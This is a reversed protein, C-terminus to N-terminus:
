RDGELDREIAAYFQEDRDMAAELEAWFEPPKEANRRRAEVMRIAWDVREAHNAERPRGRAGRCREGPKAKCAPCRWERVATRSVTMAM